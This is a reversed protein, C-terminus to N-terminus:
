RQIILKQHQKGEKTSVVLTYIGNEFASVDIQSTKNFLLETYVLQGVNNYLSLTSNVNNLVSINVFQGAPNPSVKFDLERQIPDNLGTINNQRVWIQNFTSPESSCPYDDVEWRTSSCFPDAGGLYWHYTSGKWLPYDTMALDGRDFV